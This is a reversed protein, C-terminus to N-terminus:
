SSARIPPCPIKKKGRVVVDFGLTAVSKGTAPRPGSPLGVAITVPAWRALRTGPAPTERGVRVAPLTPDVRLRVCLRADVLRAAADQLAAGRVDPVRSQPAAARHHGCAALALAVAPFALLRRM